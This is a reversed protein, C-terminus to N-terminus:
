RDGPREGAVGRQTPENAPLRAGRRAFLATGKPSKVIGVGPQSIDGVRGACPRAMVVPGVHLYGGFRTGWPLRM